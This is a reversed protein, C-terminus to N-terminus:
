SNGGRQAGTSELQSRVWSRMGDENSADAVTIYADPATADEMFIGIMKHVDETSLWKDGREESERINELFREIADAKRAISPTPAPLPPPAPAYAYRLTFERCANNFSIVSATLRELALANEPSLM